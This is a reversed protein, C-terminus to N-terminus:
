KNKYKKKLVSENYSLIFLVVLLLILGYDISFNFLIMTMLVMFLVFTVIIDHFFTFEHIFIIMYIIIMALILRYFFSPYFFTHGIYITAFSIIFAKIFVILRSETKISRDSTNEKHFLALVSAIVFSLVCYFFIM